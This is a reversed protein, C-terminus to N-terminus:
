RFGKMPVIVVGVRGSSTDRAAVKLQYRADALELEKSWILGQRLGEAYAEPTLNIDISDGVLTAGSEEAAQQAFLVEVRGTRRDDERRLQIDSVDFLVVVRLKGQKPAFRVTMGLAASEVPSGLAQQFEAKTAAETGSVPSFSYYGSPQIVSAGQRNVQVTLEHLAGNGSARAPPFTLVYSLRADDIATRLADKIDGVKFYAKGGTRLALDRVAEHPVSDAAAVPYVALGAGQLARAAPGMGIAPFAGSIWILNKRGPVRTMHDAIAAIATLTTRAAGASGAFKHDGERVWRDLESGDSKSGSNDTNIRGQYRGLVSLLRSADATSDHLVRLDRGLVYLAVRDQPLLGGLYRLLLRRAEAQDDFRTNLEDFLVATVTAPPNPLLETRNTFTNPPLARSRQANDGSAGAAEMSFGTIEQRQGRDYITFDEKKLDDVPEGKNNRVVVNLRVEAQALLGIGLCLATIRAANM